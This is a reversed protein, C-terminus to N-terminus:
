NLINRFSLSRQEYLDGTVTLLSRYAPCTALILAVKQIRFKSAM